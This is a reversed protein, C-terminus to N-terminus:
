APASVPALTTPSTDAEVSADPGDWAARARNAHTMLYGILLAFGLLFSTVVFASEHRDLKAPQPALLLLSPVITLVAVFLLVVVEWRLGDPRAIAERTGAAM